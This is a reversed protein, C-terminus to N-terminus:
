SEQAPAVQPQEDTNHEDSTPEEPAKEVAHAREVQLTSENALGVVVVSTGTPIKEKESTQAPYEALQGQLKLHIKGASQNGGPIPVYVTGLKGVARGIRLTGDSGLRMMTMMIWHVGYMAGLGAVTGLVLQMAPAVKASEATLGVLGFFTIAAVITRFSLVGFLWNSGVHDGDGDPDGHDVDGGHHVDGGHMLDGVDHPADAGFDGHHGGVGVLTLVFQCALLTGGVVACILFLTSM